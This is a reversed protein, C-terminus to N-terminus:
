SVILYEHKVSRHFLYGDGREKKLIRTKCKQSVPVRGGTGLIECTHRQTIYLTYLM